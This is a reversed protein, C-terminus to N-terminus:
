NYRTTRQKGYQLYQFNKIKAIGDRTIIINKCCINLHQFGSEHLYQFGTAAEKFWRTIRTIADPSNRFNKDAVIDKLTFSPEITHFLHVKPIPLYEYSLLPLVHHHQLTGWLKENEMLDNDLVIKVTIKDNTGYDVAITSRFQDAEIVKYSAFGKAQVVENLINKPFATLPNLKTEPKPKYKLFKASLRDM